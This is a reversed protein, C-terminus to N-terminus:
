SDNNFGKAKACALSIAMPLSEQWGSNNWKDKGRHRVSCCYGQRPKNMAISAEAFAELCMMAQDIDTDPHWDRAEMWAGEKAEPFMYYGLCPEGQNYDNYRWGMVETALFTNLDTM